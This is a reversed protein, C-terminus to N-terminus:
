TKKMILHKIRQLDLFDKAIKTTMHSATKADPVILWGFIWQEKWVKLLTNYDGDNSILYASVLSQEQLDFISRIAIDIDVNGKVEWHFKGTEKFLM